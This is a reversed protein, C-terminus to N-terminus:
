RLASEVLAEGSLTTSTVLLIRQGPPLIAPVRLDHFGAAGLASALAQKSSLSAGARLRVLVEGAAYAPGPQPAPAAQAAHRADRVGAQAQMVLLLGGAFCLSLALLVGIISHHFEGRVKTPM